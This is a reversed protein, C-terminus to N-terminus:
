CFQGGLSFIQFTFCKRSVVYCRATLLKVIFNKYLKSNNQAGMYYVVTQLNGYCFINELVTYLFKEKLGHTSHEVHKPNM